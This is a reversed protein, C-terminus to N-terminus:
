DKGIPYILSIVIAFLSLCKSNSKKYMNKYTLGGFKGYRYYNICSKMKEKLKINKSGVIHNEAYSKSLPSRKAAIRGNKTLGDDLYDAIYTTENFWRILYGDNSISLWLVSEQMFKEGEFFPFKYQRILDTRIVEAKDGIYKKRFNASTMDIYKSSISNGIINGNKYAKNGAIGAFKKDNRISDCYKNIIEISNEPLIDDSDVIFFWEGIAKEAGYNIAVHKGENKKYFYRIPFNAKKIFVDILESTEDNSGDDVIIWEFDKCTQRNLSEFLESLIYARNYTPTFISIM